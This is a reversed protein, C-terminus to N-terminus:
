ASFHRASTSHSNSMRWWRIEEKRLKIRTRKGMELKNAAITDQTEVIISELFERLERDDEPPEIEDDVHFCARIRRYQSIMAPKIVFRWLSERDGQDEESTKRSLEEIRGILSPVLNECVRQFVAIGEPGAQAPLPDVLGEATTFGETYADLLQLAGPHNLRIILKSPQLAAVLLLHHYLQIWRDENSPTADGDGDSFSSPSANDADSTAVPVDIDHAVVTSASRTDVDDEGAFTDDTPSPIRSCAHGSLTADAAHQTSDQTSDVM